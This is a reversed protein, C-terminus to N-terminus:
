LNCLCTMPRRQPITRTWSKRSFEHCVSSLWLVQFKLANALFHLNSVRRPLMSMMQMPPTNRM